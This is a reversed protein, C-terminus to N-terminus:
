RPRGVQRLLETTAPTVARMLVTSAEEALARDAAEFLGPPVILPERRQRQQARLRQLAEEAREARARWGRAHITTLRWTVLVAFTVLLLVGALRLLILGATV